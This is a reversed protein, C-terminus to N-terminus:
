KKIAINMKFLIYNTNNTGIVSFFTIKKIAVEHLRYQGCQNSYLIVHKLDITIM